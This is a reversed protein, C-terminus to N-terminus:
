MGNKLDEHDQDNKKNFPDMKNRHFQTKAKCSEM